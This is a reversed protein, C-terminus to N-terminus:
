GFKMEGTHVLNHLGEGIHLHVMASGIIHGANYLTMKIEPTIDVVEGYEVPVVSRLEAQIDKKTYPPDM